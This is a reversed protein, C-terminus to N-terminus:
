LSAAQQSRVIGQELLRLQMSKVVMDKPLELVGELKQYRVFILKQKAAFQPDSKDPWVYTTAKGNLTGSALVQLSGNFEKNVRQGGGGQVVFARYRFQGAVSDPEINFRRISVAGASGGTAGSAGDSSLLTEMYALDAKLRANDSELTKVQLALRDTATRAIKMHSDASNVVSLQKEHELSLKSLQSQSRDLESVLRDRESAGKGVTAQWISVAVIAGLSAGLAWGLARLWMPVHRQVTMRPASVTMRRKFLRLRL